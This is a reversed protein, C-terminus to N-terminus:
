SEYATIGKLEKICESLNDLKERMIKIEKMASNYNKRRVDYKIFSGSNDVMNAWSLASDNWFEFDSKNM